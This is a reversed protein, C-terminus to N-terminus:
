IEICTFSDPLIKYTFNGGITTAKGFRKNDTVVLTTDTSFFEIDMPVAQIFQVAQWVQGKNISYAFGQNTGIVIITDNVKKAETLVVYPHFEETWSNGGDITRFMRNFSSFALGELTDFMVLNYIMFGSTDMVKNWNQGGNTTKYIDTHFGTESNSIIYACDENLRNLYGNISGGIGPPDLSTLNDCEDFSIGYYNTRGNIVVSSDLISIEMLMANTSTPVQEFQSIAIKSFLLLLTGFAVRM